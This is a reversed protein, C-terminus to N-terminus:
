FFYIKRKKKVTFSVGYKLPLAAIGRKRWKNENNFNEVAAVRQTFEASGTVKEWVKPLHDAQLLKQGFEVFPNAQDTQLAERLPTKQGNRYFNTARAALRKTLASHGGGVALWLAHEVATEAITIAQIVGFSRMATGTPKNTLWATGECRFHAANYANDSLLVALEVVSNTVSSSRYFHTM